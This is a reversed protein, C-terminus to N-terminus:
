IAHLMSSYTSILYRHRPSRFLYRTAVLLCRPLARGVAFGARTRDYQAPPCACHLCHRTVIGRVLGAFQRRQQRLHRPEVPQPQEDGGADDTQGRERGVRNVAVYYVANEMARTNVASEAVCEAGPPWNTPLAILDAGELSCIRAAEPFALFGQGSEGDVNARVTLALGAPEPASARCATRTSLEEVISKLTDNVWHSARGGIVDGEKAWADHQDPLDFGESSTANKWVEVLVNGCLAYGYAGQAAHSKGDRWM